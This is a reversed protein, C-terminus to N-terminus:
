VSEATPTIQYPSLYVGSANIPAEIHAECEIKGVDTKKLPATLKGLVLARPIDIVYYYGSYAITTIKISKYIPDDSVAASWVGTAVAGGLFLEMNTTSLDLTAFALQKVKGSGDVALIDPADSGECQIETKDPAEITLEVSDKYINAVEALSSGMAGDAGCAGIEIKSIGKMRYKAM